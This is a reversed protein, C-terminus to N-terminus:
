FLISYAFRDSFYFLNIRNVLKVRVSSTARMDHNTLKSQLSLTWFFHILWATLSIVNTLETSWNSEIVRLPGCTMILWSAKYLCLGLFIFLCIQWLFVLLKNPQCIQCSVTLPGCTVILRSAKYLCSDLFFSYAFVDSENIRDVFKVRVSNTAQM